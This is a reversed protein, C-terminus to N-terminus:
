PRSGDGSDGFGYRSLEVDLEEGSEMEWNGVAVAGGRQM